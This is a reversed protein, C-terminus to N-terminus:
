QVRRARYVRRLAVPALPPLEFLPELAQLWRLARKNQVGSVYTARQQHVEEFLHRLAGTVAWPHNPWLARREEPPLLHALFVLPNSVNPEVAVILGGPRLVRYAEALVLHLDPVHHLVDIALVADVSATACPLETSEGCVLIGPLQGRRALHSQGAAAMAPSLDVGLLRHCRQRLLPWYYATGCGLDLLTGVPEPLLRDLVRNLAGRLLPRRELLAPDFRDRYGCSLGYRTPRQRGVLNDYHRRQLEVCSMSPMTVAIM